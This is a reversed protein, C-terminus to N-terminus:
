EPQGAIGGTGAKDEVRIAIVNRGEKLVGAPVTYVRQVQADSLGGVAVRNVFTEDADDIRRLHLRAEKGAMQQPVDFAYRFLFTGDVNAVGRREVLGPIAMRPWSQDDFSIEKWAAPAAQTLPGQLNEINKVIARENEKQASDLNIEGVAAIMDRFEDSNEFAERSTWPEIHTGGWSSNILGIPVDIEKLVERAFFYGV